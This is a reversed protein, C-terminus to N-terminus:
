IKKENKLFLKMNMQIMNLKKLNPKRPKPTKIKIPLENFIIKGTTPIILGNFHEILTTKGSGTPGIISIAEGESIELSVNDIVKIYTPLGKDYEKTIESAKIQM